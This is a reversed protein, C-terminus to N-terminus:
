RVEERIGYKSHGHERAIPVSHPCESNLDGPSTLFMVDLWQNPPRIPEFELAQIVVSLAHMECAKGKGECM